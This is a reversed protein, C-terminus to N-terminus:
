PVHKQSWTGYCSLSVASKAAVRNRGPIYYTYMSFNGVNWNVDIYVLNVNKHKAIRHLTNSLQTSTTEINSNHIILKQVFKMCLLNKLFKLKLWTVQCDLQSWLKPFKLHIQNIKRLEHLDLLFELVSDLVYKWWPCFERRSFFRGDDIYVLLSSSIERLIQM